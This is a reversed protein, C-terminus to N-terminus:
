IYIIQNYVDNKLSAAEEQIALNLFCLEDVIKGILSQGSSQSVIFVGAHDKGADMRSQVHGRIREDSTILVYGNEHCFELVQPDPTGVVLIDILRTTEVGCKQLEVVVANPINEDTM